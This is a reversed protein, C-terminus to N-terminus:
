GEHWPECAPSCTHASNEHVSADSDAQAFELTAHHSGSRTENEPAASAVYRDGLESVSKVWGIWGNSHKRIWSDPM